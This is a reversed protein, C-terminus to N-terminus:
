NISCKQVGFFPISILQEKFGIVAQDIRQASSLQLMLYLNWKVMKGENKSFGYLGQDDFIQHLWWYSFM